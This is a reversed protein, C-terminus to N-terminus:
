ANLEARVGTLLLDLGTTFQERDDHERLDGAVLHLFPYTAPDLRSWQTSQDALWEDRTRGPAATQANRTMQAAVGLVYTFIATAVYFQRHTAVGFSGLLGGIRDLARLRSPLDASRPLHAGIWPHRDLADFLSTALDRIADLEDGATAPVASEAETLVADCALDLLEQRHAVHWHIAGSGSHLREALARFTLGREGWEDLIAIAATVVAERTLSSEKPRRGATRQESM